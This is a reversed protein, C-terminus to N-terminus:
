NEKSYFYKFGDLKTIEGSKNETINMEQLLNGNEDIKYLFYQNVKFEGFEEVDGKPLWVYRIKLTRYNDFYEFKIKYNTRRRKTSGTKRKGKKKDIFETLYGLSDFIYISVTRDKNQFELRESKHNPYNREIQLVNSNCEITDNYISITNWHIKWGRNPELSDITGDKSYYITEHLSSDIPSTFKYIELKRIEQSQIRCKNYHDVWGFLTDQNIVKLDFTYPNTKYHFFRNINDYRGTYTDHQGISILGILCFLMLTTIKLM